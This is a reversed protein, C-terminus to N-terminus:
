EVHTQETGTTAKRRGKKQWLTTLVKDFKFYPWDKVYVEIV